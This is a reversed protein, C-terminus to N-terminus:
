GLSAGPEKVLEQIYERSNKRYRIDNARVKADSKRYFAEHYVLRWPIGSKTDNNWGANHREVRVTLESTYSVYYRDESDSYIIYSYWIM